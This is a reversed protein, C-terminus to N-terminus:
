IAIIANIIFFFILGKETVVVDPKWKIIHQCMAEVEEEEAKL